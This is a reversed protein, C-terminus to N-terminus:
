EEIIEWSDGLKGGEFEQEYLWQIGFDDLFIIKDAQESVFHNVQYYTPHGLEKIEPEAVPTYPENDLTVYGTFDSNFKFDNVADNFITSKGEENFEFKFVGLSLDLHNETPYAVFNFTKTKSKVVNISTEFRMFANPYLGRYPESPNKWKLKM